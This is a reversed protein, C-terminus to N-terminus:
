GMMAELLQPQRSTAIDLKLMSKKANHYATIRDYQRQLNLWFEASIGLSTELRLAMELSIRRKKHLLQSIIAQSVGMQEAIAQQTMNRAELEDALMEGPHTATPPIINNATKM